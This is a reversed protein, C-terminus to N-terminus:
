MDLGDCRTRFSRRWVQPAHKKCLVTDPTFSSWHNKMIDHLPNQHFRELRKIHQTYNTWTEAGYLLSTLVCTNYIGLKTNVTIDHYSWVRKELKGYAAGAKGIRNNIDADLSGCRSLKSGLYIFNDM